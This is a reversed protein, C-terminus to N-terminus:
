RPSPSTYLLCRYEVKGTKSDMPIGSNIATTNMEAETMAKSYVSNGVVIEQPAVFNKGASDYQLTYSVSGTYGPFSPSWTFTNSLQKYTALSGTVSTKATLLQSSDAFPTITVQSVNSLYRENNNVYSSTIRFDLKVAKGLAYGRNLLITNLERGTFSTTLTKTLTRTDPVTFNKGASDIESDRICM